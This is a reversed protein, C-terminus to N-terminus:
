RDERRAPLTPPVQRHLYYGGERAAAGRRPLAAAVVLSPVLTILTLAIAMDVMLVPWRWDSSFVHWMAHLKSRTPDPGSYAVFEINQDPWSLAGDVWLRGDEYRNTKTAVIRLHARPGVDAILQLALPRGEAEVLPAFDISEWGPHKRVPIERRGERFIHGSDGEGAEIVRWILIGPRDQSVRSAIRLELRSAPAPLVGLEQVISHKDYLMIHFVGIATHPRANVFPARYLLAVALGGLVAVMAVSGFLLLGLRRKMFPGSAGRSAVENGLAIGAGLGILLTGGFELSEELVVELVEARGSFLVLYSAEHLVALVWATFGLILPARVTWASLGKHIFFFMAVVFAVILPSLVVPWRYQNNSMGLVESGLSLTGSIHFESFEEWALYALTAALASWGAKTIWSPTERHPEDRAIFKDFSRIANALALLAAILLATMSVTNALSGEIDPNLHPSIADPPLQAPFALSLLRPVVIAGWWFVVAGLLLLRGTWEVLPRLETKRM